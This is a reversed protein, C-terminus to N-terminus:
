KSYHYFKMSKTGENTVITVCYVGSALDGPLMLLQEVSGADHHNVVLPEMILKGVGDRVEYRSNSAANLAFRITIAEAGSHPNPFLQVTNDSESLKDVGVNQLVRINMTATSGSCGEASFGVANIAQGNELAESTFTNVASPMGQSVNNLYFQYTLAGSAYFTIAQGHHISLDPDSCKLTVVPARNVALKIAKTTDSFCKNYGIVKMALVGPPPILSLKNASGYGYSVTDSVFQYWGAGSANFEVETGKCVSLDVDSCTLVPKPRYTVKFQLEATDIGCYNEGSVVVRQNNM